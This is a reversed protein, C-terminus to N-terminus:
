GMEREIAAAVAEAHWGEVPRVVRVTPPGAALARVWRLHAAAGGEVGILRRGWTHRVLAAARDLAAVPEVEPHRVRNPELVVVLRVPAPDPPDVPFLTKLGRRGLPLAGARDLGLRDVSADLLSLWPAWPRAVPWGDRVEIPLADDAAVAHGRERLAAAVTSKGAGKPGCVAVVGSGVRAASAHLCYRGQQVLVAPVMAHLVVVAVREPPAGPEPQVTVRRGDQALVRVLGPHRLLVRGPAAEFHQGRATPADLHEPVPGTRVEAGCVRAPLEPPHLADM